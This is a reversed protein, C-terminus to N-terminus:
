SGTPRTLTWATMYGGYSWGSQALRQPDAIGRRVLEDLGSQIDQYDNGGWDRVNALVFKEGYGSSGRINPLFVVWGKGALVHAYNTIASPFAQTWVGAPGGHINAWTPYSRGQQYGVPLVLLGEIEM